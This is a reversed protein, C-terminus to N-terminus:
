ALLVDAMPINIDWEEDAQAPRGLICKAKACTKESMTRTHGLLIHNMLTEVNGYIGTVNGEVSCITCGYNCDEKDDTRNAHVPAVKIDSLTKKKVHSKALFVWRYRIGVASTHISPDVTIDKKNRKTPHPATFTDGQFLCSKCQWIQVTNYMGNPLSQLGLGRKTEERTAWAGKCFGWYNNEKCPRGDMMTEQGFSPGQTTGSRISSSLDSSTHTVPTLGLALALEPSPEILTPAPVRAPSPTKNRRALSYIDDKLPPPPPRSTIITTTGYNSSSATIPTVNPPSRGRPPAAFPTTAHDPTTRRQPGEFAVIPLFQKPPPMPSRDKLPAPPSRNRLPAPLTYTQQSAGYPAMPSAYTEQQSKQPSPHSTKPVDYGKQPAGLPGNLRAQPYQHTAFAAIVPSLPSEHSSYASTSPPPVPSENRSSMSNHSYLSPPARDSYISSSASTDSWRRSPQHTNQESVNQPLASSVPFYQSFTPPQQQFVHHNFTPYEIAQELKEGPAPPLNKLMLIADQNLAYTDRRSSDGNLIALTDRKVSSNAGAGHLLAWTHNRDGESYLGQYSSIIEDIDKMTPGKNESGQILHSLAPSFNITGASSAPRHQSSTSFNRSDRKMSFYCTLGPNPEKCEGTGLTPITVASPVCNDTVQATHATRFSQMSELSARMDGPGSALTRPLPRTILIRQKLEDLCDISDKRNVISSKHLIQLNLVANEYKVALLLSKIVEAQMIVAIYLLRDRAIADGIRIIEGLEDLDQTYRIGVQTEGMELSDQLQKEEFEQQSRGKSNHRRQKKKIHAMLEAGGHFASVVAAVAGIVELGSM